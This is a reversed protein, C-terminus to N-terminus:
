NMAYALLRFVGVVQVAAHGLVAILADGADGVVVQVQELQNAKAGARVTEHEAVRGGPLLHGLQDILGALRQM